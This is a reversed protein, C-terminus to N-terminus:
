IATICVVIDFCRVQSIRLRAATRKRDLEFLRLEEKELEAALETIKVKLATAATFDERTVAVAKELELSAM